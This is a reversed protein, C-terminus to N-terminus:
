PKETLRYYVYVVLGTGFITLLVRYHNFIFIVAEWERNRHMLSLLTTGMLYSLSWSILEILLIFCFGVVLSHLMLSLADVLVDFANRM